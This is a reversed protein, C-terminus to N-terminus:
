SRCWRSAASDAQRGFALGGVFVAIFGNGHLALASAYACVALGLVASGAFGEAAWGRRRAVNM